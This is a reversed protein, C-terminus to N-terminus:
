KLATPGSVGTKPFLVERCLHLGEFFAKQRLFFHSLNSRRFVLESWLHLQYLPIYYLGRWFGLHKLIFYVRNRTTYRMMFDSGLGGTLSHAKHLLTATPLYLLKLGSKMARYCFDTDEVYVFYHPDLFGIREFVEKRIMLCCGPAHDVYRPVDFQGRDPEEYGLHFGAYARLRALGGGASWILGPDHFFLIKPAVMDVGESKLGDVLQAILTPDFETDNNILLVFESGSKLALRIAKNNAEAFGQNVDNLVIRIRPDKYTAIVQQTSDSSCNDVLYVTLNDYTQKLISQLFGDIVKGSNYTVTVAAVAPSSTTPM